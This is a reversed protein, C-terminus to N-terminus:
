GILRKEGKQAKALIEQPQMICEIHPTPIPLFNQTPTQIQSCDLYVYISSCLGSCPESGSWFPRDHRPPCTACCHFVTLTFMAIFTDISFWM